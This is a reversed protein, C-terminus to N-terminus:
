SLVPKGKSGMVSPLMRACPIPDTSAEHSGHWRLLITDTSPQDSPQGTGSTPKRSRHRMHPARGM